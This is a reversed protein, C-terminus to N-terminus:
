LAKSVASKWLEKMKEAMDDFYLTIWVSTAVEKMTKMDIGSILIQQVLGAMDMVFTGERLIIPFVCDIVDRVLELDGHAIVRKAVDPPIERVEGCAVVYSRM